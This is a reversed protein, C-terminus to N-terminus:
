IMMSQISETFHVTGSMEYQVYLHFDVFVNTPLSSSQCIRWELNMLKVSILQHASLSILLSRQNQLQRYFGLQIPNQHMLGWHIWHLNPNRDRFLKTNRDGTIVVFISSAWHHKFIHSFFGAYCSIFKCHTIFDSLNNLAQDKM